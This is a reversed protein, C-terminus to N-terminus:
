NADGHRTGERVGGPTAQTSEPATEAGGVGHGAVFRYQGGMARLREREAESVQRRCFPQMVGLVADLDDRRFTVRTEADGQAREICPLLRLRGGVRARDTWAYLREGGQVGVRGNRCRIYALWRRDAPPWESAQEEHAIRYRHGLEAVLDICDTM